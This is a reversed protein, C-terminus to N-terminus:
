ENVYVSLEGVLVNYKDYGSTDIEIVERWRANELDQYAVLIGAYRTGPSLTLDYTQKAGPSFEFENKTILDPGLVNKPEDYLAFFDQSDFLTRSSLEFVKVVVPSPRGERDPNVDKAVDFNLTSYPDVLLTCGGLFLAAAAAMGAGKWIKKMGM